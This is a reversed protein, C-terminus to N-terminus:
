SIRTLVLSSAASAVVLFFLYAAGTTSTSFYRVNPVSIDFKYACVQQLLLSLLLFLMRLVLADPIHIYM